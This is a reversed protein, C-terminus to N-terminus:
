FQSRLFAQLQAVEDETIGSGTKLSMREVVNLSRELTDLRGYVRGLSHCKSCRHRMLAFGEEARTTDAVTPVPPAPEDTSPTGADVTPATIEPVRLDIEPMPPPTPMPEKTTVAVPAPATVAPALRLTQAMYRALTIVDSKTILLPAKLRMQEILRRWQVETLRRREAVEESHCYLCKQEYSLRPSPAASLSVIVLLGLM